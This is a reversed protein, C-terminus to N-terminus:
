SWRKGGKAGCSTAEIKFIIFGRVFGKRLGHLDDNVSEHIGEM